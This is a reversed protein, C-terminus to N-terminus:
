LVVKTTKDGQRKIYIGKEPNEMRIGQINYYEIDSNKDVTVSISSSTSSLVEVETTANSANVGDGTNYSLIVDKIEIQYTGAAMEASATFPITM